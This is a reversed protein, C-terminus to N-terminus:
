QYVRGRHRVWGDVHDGEPDHHTWHITGGEESWEYEGCFSVSDRVRLGRVRPALDINHAILLTQGSALRVIFRQHRSGDKDDELVRVVTGKGEVQLGRARTAFADAILRDHADAPSIGAPSPTEGAPPTGCATVSGAVTLVAPLTV